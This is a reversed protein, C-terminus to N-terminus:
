VSYHPNNELIKKAIKDLAGNWGELYGHVSNPNLNFHRLILLTKEAQPIFEVIVESIYGAESEWEWTYRLKSFEVIELYEGYATHTSHDSDQFSIRYKGGISLDIDALLVTGNPDSGFWIKIFEPETWISWVLNVPANFLREIVVENAKM